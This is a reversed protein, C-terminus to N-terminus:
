PKQPYESIRKDIQELIFECVSTDEHMKRLERIVVQLEIHTLRVLDEM